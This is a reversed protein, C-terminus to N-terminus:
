VDQSKLNVLDRCRSLTYGSQKSLPFSHILSVTTRQNASAHKQPGHQCQCLYICPSSCLKLIGVMGSAIGEWSNGKGTEGSPNCSSAPKEFVHRDTLSCTSNQAICHSRIDPCFQLVSSRMASPVYSFLEM